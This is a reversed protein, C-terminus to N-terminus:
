DLSWNTAFFLYDYRAAFNTRMANSRIERQSSNLNVAIKPAGLHLKHYTVGVADSAMQYSNKRENEGWLGGKINIKCAATLPHNLVSSILLKEQSSKRRM